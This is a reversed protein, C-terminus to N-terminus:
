DIRRVLERLQAEEFYERGRNAIERYVVPYRQELLKTRSEAISKIIPDVSGGALYFSLRLNRQNEKLQTVVAGTSAVGRVLDRYGFGLYMAMQGGIGMGHAVVRQRDINHSAVVARIAETVYDADSPIWGGEAQTLPGLLIIHNDKCFDDWLETFTEVDEDKTKGPPHLWVVLAHAINPDYDEHVYVWYKREGDNSNRKLLGTEAKPLNKEFVKAPKINPNSTELPERSKKLTAPQPLKDPVKWDDALTTGPFPALTLAVTDTKGDKRKVELKVDTGPSQSNLWELLQSRGQKEGTFITLDGVGTGYKVIRDGPKIGAKEAPSKDFVHRVEVGLKPDDRM